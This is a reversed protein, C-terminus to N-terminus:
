QVGKRATNWDCQADHRVTCAFTHLGCGLCKVKWFDTHLAGAIFHEYVVEGGCECPVLRFQSDPEAKVIETIM